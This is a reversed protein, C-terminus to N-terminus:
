FEDMFSQMTKKYLTAVPIQSMPIVSKGLETMQPVKLNGSAKIDFLIRYVKEANKTDQL